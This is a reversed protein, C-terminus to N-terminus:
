KAQKQQQILADYRWSKLTNLSQQCADACTRLGDIQQQFNQIFEDFDTHNSSINNIVNHVSSVSHQQQSTQLSLSLSPAPSATATTITNTSNNNLMHIHAPDIALAKLPTSYPQQSQLISRAMVPQQQTPQPSSSAPIAIATATTTSEIKARKINSQQQQEQILENGDNEIDNLITNYEIDNNHLSTVNNNQMAQVIYQIILICNNKSLLEKKYWETADVAANDLWYLLFLHDINDPRHLLYTELITVPCNHQQQQNETPQLLRQQKDTTHQQQQSQSPLHSIYRLGAENELVALQTISMNYIDDIRYLNLQYLLMSIFRILAVYGVPADIVIDGSESSYMHTIITNILSLLHDSITPQQHISTTGTTLTSNNSNNRSTTTSNVTNNTKNTNHQQTTRHQTANTHSTPQHQKVYQLAEQVGDIDNFNIMNYQPYMRLERQLGGLYARITTQPHYTGDVRKLSLIFGPLYTHLQDYTVNQISGITVGQKHLYDFFKGSGTRASPLLSGAYSTPASSRSNRTTTSTSATNRRRRKNGIQTHDIINTYIISNSNNSNSPSIISTNIDNNNIHIDDAEDETADDDVIKSDGNTGISHTNTSDVTSDDIDDNATTPLTNHHLDNVNHNDDEEAVLQEDDDDTDDNMLDTNTHVVVPPSPESTSVPTAPQLPPMSVTINNNNNNDTSISSDDAQQPQQQQYNNTTTNVTPTDATTSTDSM